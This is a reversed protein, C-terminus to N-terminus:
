TAVASITFSKSFIGPISSLIEHGFTFSPPIAKPTLQGSAESTTLATRFTYLFSNITFSEGFTVSTASIARATSASPASLKDTIFVKSPIATSALVRLGSSEVMVPPSEPGAMLGIASRITQCTAFVTFIGTTPRPPIIFAVSAM